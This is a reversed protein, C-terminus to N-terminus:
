IVGKEALELLIAVPPSPAARGLEYYYLTRQSVGLMAALEKLLLGRAERLRKIRAPWGAPSSPTRGKPRKKVMITM